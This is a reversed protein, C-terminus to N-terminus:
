QWHRIIKFNFGFTNKFLKGNDIALSSGITFQKYPKFMSLYYSSQTIGDYPLNYTGYNKTLAYKLIWITSGYRGQLSCYITKVLNNSTFNQASKPLNDAITYNNPIFPTGIPLERYSWGNRYTSNNFYNDRGRLQPINNTSETEGGQSTTNLYEIVVSLIGKQRNKRKLSIGLLGDQINNLYFLSGDEYINQRYLLLDFYKFGIETAIDITGLHNGIRNWAENIPRGTQIGNDGKNISIGSVVYLYADLGSPLKNIILGNLDYQPERTRGGWQVQHNFGTYIKIKWNPKGVRGYLWKQHLYFNRIFGNDFWGHSFAGKISILGKGLIPTYNPVSIQIKPIPLANGSWIYSGSSMTTDILGITERKRGAYLEFIGFRTKIYGEPLLIQNTFGVNAIANIGYGINIKKLKGEDSYTSDYEKYIGGEIGVVPNKLPVTGYQNSRQWFPTQNSTSLYISSTTQYKLNRFIKQGFLSSYFFILLMTKYFFKM